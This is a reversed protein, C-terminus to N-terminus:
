FKQIVKLQDTILLQGPDKYINEFHELADKKLDQQEKIIAGDHTQWNGYLM